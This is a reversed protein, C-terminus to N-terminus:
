PIVSEIQPQFLRLQAPPYRNPKIQIHCIYGFHKSISLWFYFLHAGHPFHRKM